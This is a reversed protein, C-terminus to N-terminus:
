RQTGRNIENRGAGHVVFRDITTDLQPGFHASRLIDPGAPVDDDVLVVVPRTGSTASALNRLARYRVADPELEVCRAQLQACRSRLRELEQRTARDIM